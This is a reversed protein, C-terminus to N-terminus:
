TPCCSLGGRDATRGLDGGQLPRQTQLGSGQPQVSSASALLTPCPIAPRQRSQAESTGWGLFPYLNRYQEARAIPM